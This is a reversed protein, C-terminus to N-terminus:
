LVKFLCAQTYGGTSMASFAYWNINQPAPAYNNGSNVLFKVMTNTTGRTPIGNDDLTYGSCSFGASAHGVFWYMGAKLNIPASSKVGTSSIDIEGFNFALEGPNGTTPDANYLAMSFKSGAVAASTVNVNGTVTCDGPINVLVAALQNASYTFTAANTFNQFVTYYPGGAVVKFSSGGGGIGTKKPDTSISM